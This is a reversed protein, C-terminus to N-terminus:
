HCILTPYFLMLFLAAVNHREFNYLWGHWLGDDDDERSLVRSLWRGRGPTMLWDMTAKPPEYLIDDDSAVLGIPLLGEYPLINEM